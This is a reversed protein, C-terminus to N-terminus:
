RSVSGGESGSGPGPKARELVGRLVKMASEPKPPQPQGAYPGHQITRGPAPQMQSYIFTLAATWIVKEREAQM